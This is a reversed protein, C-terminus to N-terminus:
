GRVRCHREILSTVRANDSIRIFNINLLHNINSSSSLFSLSSLLINSLFRISVLNFDNDVGYLIQYENRTWNHLDFSDEHVIEDPDKFSSLFSLEWHNISDTESISKIIKM